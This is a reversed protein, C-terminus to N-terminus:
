VILGAGRCSWDGLTGVKVQKKTNMTQLAGIWESREASETGTRSFSVALNTNGRTGTRITRSHSSCVGIVSATSM